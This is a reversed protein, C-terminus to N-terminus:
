LKECIKCLSRKAQKSIINCIKITLIIDSTSLFVIRQCLVNDRQGLCQTILSTSNLYGRNSFNLWVSLAIYYMPRLNFSHICSTVVAFDCCVRSFLYRGKWHIFKVNIAVSGTTIDSPTIGLQNRTVCSVHLDGAAEHRKDCWYIIM